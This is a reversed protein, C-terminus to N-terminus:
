QRNWPRPSCASTPSRLTSARREPPPCPTPPMEQWCFRPHRMPECVVSRFRLVMKDAIPGELLTFGDEGAVRAQLEDWIRADPWADVDEDSNSQFYMRQVTQTRQSILAFGRKSHTYVLEPASPPADCLIGFWAFPYERSSTRRASPRYREAVSAARGTRASSFIM